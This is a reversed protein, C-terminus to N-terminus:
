SKNQRVAGPLGDVQRKRLIDSIDDNNGKLGEIEDIERLVERYQRAISALKDTDCEDLGNKLIIELEKLKELRAM